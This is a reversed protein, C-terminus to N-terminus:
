IISFLEKNEDREKVEPFFERLASKVLGDWNFLNMKNKNITGSDDVLKDMNVSIDVKFYAQQLASYGNLGISILLTALMILAFCISTIGYIKLRTERARRSQISKRIM